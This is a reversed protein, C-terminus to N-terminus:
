NTKMNDYIAMIDELEHREIWLLDCAMLYVSLDYSKRHMTKKKHFVTWQLLCISRENDCLLCIDRPFTFSWLIHSLIHKMCIQIM